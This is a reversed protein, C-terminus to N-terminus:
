PPRPARRRGGDNAVPRPRHVRGTRCPAGPARGASPAAEDEDWEVVAGPGPPQEEVPLRQALGDRDLRKRCEVGRPGEPLQTDCAVPAHRHRPVVLHHDGVVVHAAQRQRQRRGLACTQGAPAQLGRRVVGLHTDLEASRDSLELRDLVRQRVHQDRHLLTGGDGPIGRRGPALVLRRPRVTDDVLPAVAMQGGADRAGHGEALRRTAGLLANLDESADAERPLVVRVEIQLPGHGVQLQHGAAVDARELVLHGPQGDGAGPAVQSGIQRRLRLRQAGLDAGDHCLHRRGARRVLARRHGFRPQDHRVPRRRPSTPRRRELLEDDVLLQGRRPHHAGMERHSGPRQGCQDRM